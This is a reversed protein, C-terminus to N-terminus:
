GQINKALAIPYERQSALTKATQEIQQDTFSQTIAFYHGANAAKESLEACLLKKDILDQLIADSACLASSAKVIEARAYNATEFSVDAARLTPDQGPIQQAGYLPKGAPKASDFSPMFQALHHISLQTRQHIDVQQWLHRAKNLLKTPLLPQASDQNNKVLGDKFLTIDQTMGHLQFYGDPYPTLQAMGNPTGREGLIIVEPWLGICDPWKAVYAAKFEVMRNRKFGLMDDIEGTQYGAANILYDFKVIEHNTQVSWKDEIQSVSLVQSNLKLTCSPLQAAALTAIAALRFSSLGYEQVLIVPWQLQTLDLNKAVPILWDDLTNIKLPLHQKALQELDEQQYIKYYDNPKGLVQNSPDQTILAQYYQQLKQLRPLYDDVSGKDRKPLAIVTPRINASQQYVKLTDISQKLLTLCQKDSIERYLNGGAHLHCIPPGNVLSPGQEILTTNIGLEAFRIAITSGAIGAGIIGVRCSTSSTLQADNSQM